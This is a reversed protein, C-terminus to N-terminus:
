MDLCVHLIGDIGQLKEPLEDRNEPPFRDQHSELLDKILQNQEELAWGGYGHYLRTYTARAMRNKGCRLVGANRQPNWVRRQSDMEM